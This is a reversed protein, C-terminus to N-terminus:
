RDAHSAEVLDAQFARLVDQREDLSLDARECLLRARTAHAETASGLRELAAGIRVCDVALWRLTSYEEAQVQGGGAAQEVENVLDIWRALTEPTREKVFRRRALTALAITAEPDFSLGLSDHKAERARQMFEAPSLIPKV